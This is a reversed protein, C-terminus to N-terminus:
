RRRWLAKWAASFSQVRMVPEVAGDAVKSVRLSVLVFFKQVRHMFFPLRQLSLTFVYILGALLGLFLFSVVMLPLILWILSVDAWKSVDGTNAVGAWIAGAAATLVLVVGVIIPLTIQWFVERRHERQTAPNRSQLPFKPSDKQMATNYCSVRDTKLAEPHPFLNM